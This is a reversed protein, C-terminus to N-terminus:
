APANRADRLGRESARLVALRQEATECGYHAALIRPRYRGEPAGSGMMVGAKYAEAERNRQQIDM